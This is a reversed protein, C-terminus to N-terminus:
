SGGSAKRARRSRGRVVDAALRRANRDIEEAEDVSEPAATEGHAAATEAVVAVIDPFSIKGELFAEVAVENAANVVAPAGGGAELAARAIGLAPYRAPDVEHFELRGLAVLDLRGFPNPLRDPYSLAYLIPFRMDNRAMQAVLSGDVFEVFSHVVSQPHIVVDIKSPPLGFLFHAEIVELGKNMMTASDVSIKPGMKWTPHALAEEVSISSFTSLDRDRLPGGSGTLVIRQVEAPRGSRIAQHVASHESDVPLIEGGSARATRNMLEGAVVLAEKNALALRKGAALAAHASRLGVAGVLGAVVIDAEPLSAAEALGEPGTVIRGAFGAPLRARLAGVDEEREISVLAPSHREVQAALRDLSRGAALAAVRFRDPFSGIVDLTARGISGTSGLVSVSTM